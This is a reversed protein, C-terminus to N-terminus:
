IQSAIIRLDEAAEEISVGMSERAAKLKEGIEKMDVEWKIFFYYKILCTRYKKRLSLYKDVM